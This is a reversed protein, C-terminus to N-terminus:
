ERRAAGHFNDPDFGDRMRGAQQEAPNVGRFSEDAAALGVVDGRRNRGHDVVPHRRPQQAGIGERDLAM